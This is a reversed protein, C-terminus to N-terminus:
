IIWKNRHRHKHRQPALILHTVPIHMHTIDHIYAKKGGEPFGLVDSWAGPPPARLLPGWMCQLNGASRCSRGILGWPLQCSAAPTTGPPCGGLYLSNTTKTTTKQLHTYVSNLIIFFLRAHTYTSCYYKYARLNHTNKDFFPVHYRVNANSIM